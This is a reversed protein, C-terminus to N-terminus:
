ADAMRTYELERSSLFLHASITTRASRRIPSISFSVTRCSPPSAFVSDCSAVASGSPMDRLWDERKWLAAETGTLSSLLPTVHDLREGRKGTGLDIELATYGATDRAVATLVKKSLPARGLGTHLVIGTGNIVQSFGSASAETVANRVLGLVAQKDPLRKGNKAMKRLFTLERRIIDSVYSRPLHVEEWSLSELISNISPIDRLKM